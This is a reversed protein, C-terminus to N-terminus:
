RPRAVPRKMWNKLKSLFLDDDVQNFTRYFEGVSQFLPPAALCIIEDCIENLGKLSEPPAVPVALIIEKPNQGRIWKLAALITSGTAIGDDTLIVTRNQLQAKPMFSRFSKTRKEIERFQTRKEARIQESQEHEIRKGEETLFVEGDETMAGIALESFHPHRLKRSVVVDLDAGLKEALITGPIIGGRPVALVIPHDFVRGKMRQALILGAAERNEFPLKAPRLNKNLFELSLKAVEELKGPEEFLHTAGAVLELKKKCRLKDFAQRNLRLVVEDLAGIILLTPQRVQALYDKALDPRGGRSIVAQFRQPWQAAAILAAGAGTSAGFLAVPLTALDPRNRIWLGVEMLRTALLECDFVNDRDEAETETLLDMLITAYNGNQLETAVWQNRPSKRSSGSGHAFLVLGESSLPRVLDGYIKKGDTLSVEVSVTEKM